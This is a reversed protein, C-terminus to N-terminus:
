LAEIVSVNGGDGLTAQVALVYGLSSQRGSEQEEKGMLGPRRSPMEGPM